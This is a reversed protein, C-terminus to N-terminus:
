RLVSKLFLTRLAEAGVTSASSLASGSLALRGLGQVETGGMGQKFHYVGPNKEPNIGGLDYWRCRHEKLKQIMRWQLMYSGKTKLGAESTAGLLYIGTDGMVSGILGTMLQGEKSAILILMKQGDPLRAQIRQFEEPDVTTEFQKRALMDRYIELFQRYLDNSAGEVITLSNREAANLQNRWKGDFQKRITEIPASIDLRITRYPQVGGDLRMGLRQWVQHITQSVTDQEFQQPLVRLLLRRRYVYEEALAKCAAEYIDHNWGLDRRACVPGWRLYAVGSGVIPLRILRLQALAVPEGERRLILHSLQNEGWSVAGYAWTQYINADVFPNLLDNWEPETVRDVSVSFVSRDSSSRLIPAM